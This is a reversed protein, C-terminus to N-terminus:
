KKDAQRALDALFRYGERADDLQKERDVQRALPRLDDAVSDILKSAGAFDDREVLRRAKKQALRLCLEVAAVKLARVEDSVDPREGGLAEPLGRALAVAADPEEDARLGDLRARVEAVKKRASEREAAARQEQERRSEARPRNGPVTGDCTVRISHVSLSGFVTTFAVERVTANEALPGKMLVYGSISGKAPVSEPFTSRFPDGTHRGGRDDTVEFYGFIPLKFTDGTASRATLHVKFADDGNEIRDVTLTLGGRTTSNPRSEGGLPCGRVGFVAAVVGAIAVFGIVTGCAGIGAGQPRSDM